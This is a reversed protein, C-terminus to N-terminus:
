GSASDDLGPDFDGAVSDATLPQRGAFGAELEHWHLVEPEGLRWCLYVIRGEMLSPFDVLGDLVGKAEVGLENLEDIYGQLRHTDKELDAEVQALEDGYPDGAKLDRGATLLALRHRREMVERAQTALDTCIARVLPLTANAQEITFLRTPRYDQASM